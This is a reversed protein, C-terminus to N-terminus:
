RAEYFNEFDLRTFIILEENNRYDNLLLDAAKKLKIKSKSEKITKLTKEVIVLRKSVPLKNIEKILETTGM